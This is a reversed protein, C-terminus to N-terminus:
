LETNIMGGCYNAKLKYLDLEPFYEQIRGPSYNFNWIKKDPTTENKITSIVMEPQTARWLLCDESDFAKYKASKIDDHTKTFSKYKLLINYNDIIYDHKYIGISM